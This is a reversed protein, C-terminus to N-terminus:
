APGGGGTAALTAILNVCTHPACCTSCSMRPRRWRRCPSPFALMNVCIHPVVIVAASTIRMLASFQFYSISVVVCLHGMFQGGGRLTHRPEGSAALPSFSPYPVLALVAMASAQPVPQKRTWGRAPGRAQAGRDWYGGECGM